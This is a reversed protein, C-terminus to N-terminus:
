FLIEKNLLGQSKDIVAEKVAKEYITVLVSCQKESVIRGTMFSSIHQRLIENEKESLESFNEYHRAIYNWTEEEIKAVFIQNDISKLMKQEKKVTRTTLKVEEYGILYKEDIDILLNLEEFFKWCSEQKAWRFINPSAKGDGLPPDLLNDYVDKALKLMINGLDQSIGNSWIKSLNFAKKQQECSKVFLALTYAVVQARYGGKYWMTKKVTINDELYKFLMIKAISDKFFEESILLNDKELKDTLEKAMFVMTDQAGKSAIWPKMRWITEVRMLLQKDVVQIKPHLIKFQNKKAETLYALENMYEGRVREYFWYSQNQLGSIRPALIRTSHKKFEIHFESNSFFDAQSVKNQANAYEAVKSVFNNEELKEKIVSLKMQVFIGDLGAKDVKKTSYISSVTQGGNVIQLDYIKKIRGNKEDWDVNSATATIGNNYAFFMDSNLIITNRIGKNVNGKKGLFTRVNQELLKKGFKDYIDFIFNGPVVSLYSEYKSNEYLDVKLAKLDTEVEMTKQVFNVMNMLHINEITIINFEYKFKGVKTEPIEKTRSNNKGDTLIYFKIKTILDSDAAEKIGFAMDYSESTEELNKYLGDLCKEFYEELSKFRSKIIESTLSSIKEYSQFFETSFISLCQREEDIDFGSVSIKNKFYEAMTYEPTIEGSEALDSLYKEVFINNISQGSAESAALLGQMYEKHYNELTM